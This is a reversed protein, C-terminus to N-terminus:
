LIFKGHTVPMHEKHWERAFEQYRNTHLIISNNYRDIEGNYYDIKSMIWTVYMEKHRVPATLETDSECETRTYEMETGGDHNEIINKHIKEELDNIWEIKMEKSYQNPKLEDVENIVDDVTM